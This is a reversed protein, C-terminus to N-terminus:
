LIIFVFLSLFGIHRCMHTHVFVTYTSVYACDAFDHSYILRPLFDVTKVAEWINWQMNPSGKYEKIEAESVQSNAMVKGMVYAFLM